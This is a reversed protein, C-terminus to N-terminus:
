ETTTNNRQASSLKRSYFALPRRNQSVVVDLQRDSADTHIIFVENFGPYTLITEKAMFKKIEEFAKQHIETWKLKKKGVVVLDIWFASIITFRGLFEFKLLKFLLSYSKINYMDNFELFEFSDFCSTKCM